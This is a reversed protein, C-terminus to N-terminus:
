LLDLAKILKEYDCNVKKYISCIKKIDSLDLPIPSDYNEYKFYVGGYLFRDEIDLDCLVSIVKAAVRKHSSDLYGSGPVHFVLEDVNKLTNKGIKHFEDILLYDMSLAGLPITIFPSTHGLSEPFYDLSKLDPNSNFNLILGFVSKPMGKLSNLGISSLDLDYEGENSSFTAHSFDGFLDEFSCTPPATEGEQLETYLNRRSEIIELITKGSKTTTYSNINIDAM